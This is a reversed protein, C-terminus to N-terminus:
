WVLVLDSVVYSIDSGKAGINKGIIHYVYVILIDSKCKSLTLSDVVHHLQIPVFVFYRKNDEM